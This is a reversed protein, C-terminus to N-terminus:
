TAGNLWEVAKVAAATRNCVGFKVLVNEVHKSVTKKAAGLIVAIDSDAKGQTVWFLVEIERDTLGMARLRFFDYPGREEDLCIVDVLDSSAVKLRLNLRGHPRNITTKDFPFPSASGGRQKARKIWLKLESPLTRPEFPACYRQLIRHATAPMTPVEGCPLVSLQWSSQFPNRSTNGSCSSFRSAVHKQVQEALRAEDDTFVSDRQFTVGIAAKDVQIAFGLQDKWGAPRFIMRYFGTQYFERETLHDSIRLVPSFGGSKVVGVNPSEGVYSRYNNISEAIEDAHLIEVLHPPSGDLPLVDIAAHRTQFLISLPSLARRLSQLPEGQGYLAHLVDGFAQLQYAPTGM